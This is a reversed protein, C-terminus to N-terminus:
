SRRRKDEVDIVFLKIFPIKDRKFITQKESYLLRAAFCYPVRIRKYYEEIM